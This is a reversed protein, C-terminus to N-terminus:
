VINPPSDYLFSSSDSTVSCRPRRIRKINNKVQKRILCVMCCFNFCFTVLLLIVCAIIAFSKNIIVFSNDLTNNINNCSDM